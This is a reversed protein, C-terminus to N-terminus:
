EKEDQVSNNPMAFGINFFSILDNINLINFDDKDQM